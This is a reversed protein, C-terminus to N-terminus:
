CGTAEPNQIGSGVPLKVGTREPFQFLPDRRLRHPWIWHLPSNSTAVCGGRCVSLKCGNERKESERGWRKSKNPPCDRPQVQGESMGAFTLGLDAGTYLPKILSLTSGTTQSCTGAPWVQWSKPRPFDETSLETGCSIRM